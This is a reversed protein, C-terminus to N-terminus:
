ILFFSHVGCLRQAGPFGIHNSFVIVGQPDCAGDSKQIDHFFIPLSEFKVHNESDNFHVRLVVVVKGDLAWM